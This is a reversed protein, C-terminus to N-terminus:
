TTRQSTRQVFFRNFVFFSAQAIGFGVVLPLADLKLVGLGVAFLGLALLFRQVAGLYLLVMGKKQDEAAARSARAVGWSLLRALVVSVLAGYIAAKGAEVGSLAMFVAAVFGGSAFQLLLLKRSGVGFESDASNV